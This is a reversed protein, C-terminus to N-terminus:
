QALRVLLGLVVMWTTYWVCERQQQETSKPVANRCHNTITLVLVLILILVVVIIIIVHKEIHIFGTVYVHLPDKAEKLNGELKDTKRIHVTTLPYEWM